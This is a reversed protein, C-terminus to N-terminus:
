QKKVPYCVETVYEEPNQTEHPSVHYINFAPGDYAYGNAEVWAAVATNVENILDYPGKYTASAFTVAPMKKFRVNDTDPYEGRVTKQAEVDVDSEKYEGDYFIVSCYCPDGPIVNMGATEKMMIEWLMGEQDYSPILRHVSAVQREPLTKISVNYDMKEDKRLRKIATDLLRLRKDTEEQLVSLEARKIYLCKELQSRNEYCGLIEHIAALGFGMDRLAVIRGITPLQSESYYRYGTFTDTMAPKLLGNDDYYRLMRISVRSIKSFDGIKLM